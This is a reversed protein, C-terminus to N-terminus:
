DGVGRRRTGAYRPAGLRDGHASELPRPTAAGVAANNERTPLGAEELAAEAETRDLYGAGIWGGVMAAMKFLVNNREGEAASACENAAWELLGQARRRELDTISGLPLAINRRTRPKEVVREILWEPGRAIEIQGPACGSAWEYRRGSKHLSGVGVVYGRSGARTDLGPYENGLVNVTNRLKKDAPPKFFIHRGGSGTRAVVTVPLPGILTELKALSGDGGHGPDVDLVWFDDNAVLGINAWPAQLWWGVIQDQDQTADSLGHPVMNGVPHKGASPCETKRPCRCHGDKVSWIPLIQGIEALALADALTKFNKEFISM